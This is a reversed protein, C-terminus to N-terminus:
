IIASKLSIRKITGLHCNLFMYLLNLFMYTYFSYTIVFINWIFNQREIYIYIIVYKICM